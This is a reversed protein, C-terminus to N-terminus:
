DKTGHGTEKKAANTAAVVADLLIICVPCGMYPIGFNDVCAVLTFSGCIGCRDPRVRRM